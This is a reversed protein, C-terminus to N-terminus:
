IVASKTWVWFCSCVHREEPHDSDKGCHHVRTAGGEDPTEHEANCVRKDPWKLCHKFVRGPYTRGDPGDFTTRETTVVGDEISRGFVDELRTEDDARQNHLEVEAESGVVSEVDMYAKAWDYAERWTTFHPWTNVHDDGTRWVFWWRERSRTVVPVSKIKIKNM